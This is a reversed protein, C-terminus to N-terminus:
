GRFVVGEPPRHHAAFLRSFLLDIEEEQTYWMKYMVFDHEVEPYSFLVCVQLERSVTKFVGSWTAGSIALIELRPLETLQPDVYLIGKRIKVILKRLKTCATLGQLSLDQQSTLIYLEELSPFLAWNISVRAEEIFMVKVNCHWVEPIPVKTPIDTQHYTSQSHFSSYHGLFVYAPLSSFFLQIDRTGKIALAELRRQKQAHHAMSSNYVVYSTFHDNTQYAERLRKCVRGTFAGSQQDLFSCVLELLELPLRHVISSKNVSESSSENSPVSASSLLSSSHSPSSPGRFLRKSFLPKREKLVVSM